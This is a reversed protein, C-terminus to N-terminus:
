AETDYPTLHSKLRDAFKSLRNSRHKKILIKLKSEIERIEPKSNVVWLVLGEFDKSKDASSKFIYGNLEYTLLMTMLATRKNADSFIHNRAISELLVACATHLSSNPHYAFFTKPRHIASSVGNKDKIGRLGGTIELIADHIEYV